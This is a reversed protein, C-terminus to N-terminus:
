RSRYVVITKRTVDDSGERAIIHLSNRGPELPIETDFAVTDSAGESRDSAKFFVKDENRFIYVYRRARGDGAFSASGSVTLKPRDVILGGVAPATVSLEPPEHQTLLTVGDFIPSAAAGGAKAHQVREALVWGTRNSAADPELRVELWVGASATVDLVTGASLQAVPESDRHAGAHATLPGSVVKCTSGSVAKATPFEAPFVPLSLDDHSWERLGQDVIALKLQVDQSKLDSKVRMRFTAVHSSGAALAGIRHRGTEIYVGEGSENKVTVLVDDAAGVGVNTVDVALGITEGRQVLGDSNGDKGDDVVRATYAFRPAPLAVVTADVQGTVGLDRSDSFLHVVLRDAQTALSRPLKVKTRAEVGPAGAPIHGFVLERGNFAGIDSEIVGHVRWLDHRRDGTVTAVLELSDGAASPSATLTAAVSPKPQRPVPGARWDVGLAGFAEAVRADEAAQRRELLGTAQVLAKKAHSTPAALLIERALQVLVDSAAKDDAGDKDMDALLRLTVKPKVARTKSSDLHADLGAEGKNGLENPHIDPRSKDVRARQIEIDPVIGVSQISIDGPTLYQAITLKLAADDIQYVVQVSGKGFSTSGLVLARDNHKLAGAVVESASASGRNLLVVVPVDALTGNRTAHREDREKGQERVTTVLTGDSVFRDGIQIAQELLGGPNDRLDLVLGTLGGPMRALKSLSDQLDNFTNGQFNRVHVYGIGDGLAEDAVSRLRIERRTIEYARPADMGERKIWITVATDPEGRLRNVADNLPMNITSEEGIQVIHDGSELGAEAAPTEDMVSMVMLQGDRVSIVVGLGGFRGQTGLQMERYVEPTLLVSHPDLTHLVGNVATYEIDELDVTPPLNRQLFEFVDILKWTFEYLDNVRDLAFTRTVDAVSVDVATARGKGDRKTIAVTVEPVSQQIARLAEIAMTRPAIRAADVYHSRLHGVVKNLMRGRALDYVGARDMKAQATPTEFHRGRDAFDYTFALVGVTM